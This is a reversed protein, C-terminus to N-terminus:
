RIEKSYGPGSGPLLELQLAEDNYCLTKDQPWVASIGALADPQFSGCIWVEALELALEGCGMERSCALLDTTASKSMGDASDLFGTVVAGDEYSYYNWRDRDSVPYDRLAVIAMPGTYHIRGPMYIDNGNRAFLNQTYTGSGDLNRTFGDFSTLYGKTFGQEMLAEAMLDAAFANRMWGFDAFVEIGNEEAFALYERSVALKVQSDELMELRIHSPDHVFVSLEELWAKTEENRAPDYIAAEADTECLFVRDYEVRAPALFLQRSESAAVQSLARHLEKEVTVAENVHRNLYAMNYLGPEEVDSSFLQYAREAGRSYCKTLATNVATAKGGAETFDYQFQFDRGLHTQQSQVTVEEWGPQVRLAQSFGYAIAAIGILLCVGALIWRRKEDGVTLEIKTVPKLYPRKDRM